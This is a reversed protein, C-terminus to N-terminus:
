AFLLGGAALFSVLLRKMFRPMNGALNRKSVSRALTAPRQRSISWLFDTQQRIKGVRTPRQRTVSWLFDTQQRIKGAIAPWQPKGTWLSDTQHRIKGVLAAPLGFKM